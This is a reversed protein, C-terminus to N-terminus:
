GRDIARGDNGRTTTRTAQAALDAVDDQLRAVHEQELRMAAERPGVPAAPGEVDDRTHVAGAALSTPTGDKRETDQRKEGEGDQGGGNGAM